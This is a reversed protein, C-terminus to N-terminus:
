WPTHPEKCGAALLDAGAEKTPNLRAIVKQVNGALDGVTTNTQALAVRLDSM